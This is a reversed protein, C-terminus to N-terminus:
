RVSTPCHFACFLQVSLKNRNPESFSLLSKRCYSWVPFRTKILHDPDLCNIFSPEYASVRRVLLSSTWIKINVNVFLRCSQRNQNREISNQCRTTCPVPLKKRHLLCGANVSHLNLLNFTFIQCIVFIAAFHYLSLFRRIDPRFLNSVLFMERDRNPMVKGGSGSWNPRDFFNITNM